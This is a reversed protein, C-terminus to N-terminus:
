EFIRYLFSKKLMLCGMGIIIVFCDLNIFTLQSMRENVWNRGVLYVLSMTITQCVVFIYSKFFKRFLWKLNKMQMCAFFVSSISIMCCLEIQRVTLKCVVCLSVILMIGNLALFTSYNNLWALFTYILDGFINGTNGEEVAMEFPRIVLEDNTVLSSVIGSEIKLIIMCLGFANTIWFVVGFFSWALQKFERKSFGDFNSSAIQKYVDIYWIMIALFIAFPYLSVYINKVMNYTNDELLRERRLESRLANFGTSSIDIIEDNFAALGRMLDGTLDTEGTFIGIIYDFSDIINQWNDRDFQETYVRWRDYISIEEGINDAEGNFIENWTFYPQEDDGIDERLFRVYLNQYDMGQSSIRGIVDGAEVDDDPSVLWEISGSIQPSYVTQIEGENDELWLYDSQIDLIYGDMVAYINRTEGRDAAFKFAYFVGDEDNKEEKNATLPYCRDDIYVPEDTTQTIGQIPENDANDAYASIQPFLLTILITFVVSVMLKKM